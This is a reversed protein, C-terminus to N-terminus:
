NRNWYVLLISVNGVFVYPYYAQPVQEEKKREKEKEDPKKDEKKKVVKRKANRVAQLKEGRKYQPTAARKAQAVGRRGRQLITLFPNVDGSM